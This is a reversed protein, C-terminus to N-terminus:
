KALVPKVFVIDVVVNFVLILKPLVLFKASVGSRRSM